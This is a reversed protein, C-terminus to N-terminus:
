PRPSDLFEVVDRSPDIVHNEKWLEFASSSGKFIVTYNDRRAFLPEERVPSAEAVMVVQVTRRVVRVKRRGDMPKPWGEPRAFPQGIIQEVVVPEQKKKKKSM